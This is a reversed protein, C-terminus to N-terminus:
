PAFAEMRRQGTRREVYSVSVQVSAQQPRVNVAELDILDGLWQQLSAQVSAEVASQMAGENEEFTLSSLACGFHPRNVREGPSTFLVLEILQRVHRSHQVSAALGSSEERFPFNLHLQPM